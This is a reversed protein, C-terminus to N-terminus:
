YCNSFSDIFESKPTVGSLKDESLMIRIISLGRENFFPFFDDFSALLM